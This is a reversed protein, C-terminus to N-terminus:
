DRKMRQRCKDTKIGLEEGSMEKEKNTVSISLVTGRNQFIHLYTFTYTIIIKASQLRNWTNIEQTSKRHIRSM